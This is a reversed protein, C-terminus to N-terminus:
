MTLNKIYFLLNSIMSQELVFVCTKPSEACKELGMELVLTWLVDLSFIFDSSNETRGPLWLLLVCCMFDM